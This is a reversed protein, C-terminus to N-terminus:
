KGGAISGRGARSPLRPPCIAGLRLRSQGSAPQVRAHLRSRGGRLGGARIYEGPTIALCVPHQGYPVPHQLSSVPWADQSPGSNWPNKMPQGCDQVYPVVHPCADLRYVVNSSSNMRLLLRYLRSGEPRAARGINSFGTALVYQRKCAHPVRRGLSGRTASAFESRVEPASMCQVRALPPLM